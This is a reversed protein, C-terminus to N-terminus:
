ATATKRYAGDASIVFQEIRLTSVPQSHMCNTDHVQIGVRGAQQLVLQRTRSVDEKTNSGYLVHNTRSSFCTVRNLKPVADIASKFEDFRIEPTDSAVTIDFYYPWGVISDLKAQLMKDEVIDTLYWELSPLTKISSTRGLGLETRAASYRQVLERFLPAERKDHPTKVFRKELVDLIERAQSGRKVSMCLQASRVVFETFDLSTECLKRVPALALDKVAAHDVRYFKHMMHIVRYAKFSVAKRLETRTSNLQEPNSLLEALGQLKEIANCADEVDDNKTTAPVSADRLRTFITSTEVLSKELSTLCGSENIKGTEAETTMCPNGGPDGRNGNKKRKKGRPKRRKNNRKLGMATGETMNLPKEDNRAFILKWLRESRRMAQDLQLTDQRMEADRNEDRAEINALTAATEAREAYWGQDSMMKRFHKGNNHKVYTDAGLCRLLNFLRRHGHKVALHALTENTHFTPTNLDVLNDAELIIRAIAEHGAIVASHVAMTNPLTELAGGVDEQQPTKRCHTPQNILAGMQIMWEVLDIDHAAGAAAQHLLTCLTNNTDESTTPNNDCSFIRLLEPDKKVESKLLVLDKQALPGDSERLLTMLHSFVQERAKNESRVKIAASGYEHSVFSPQAPFLFYKNKHTSLPTAFRAKIVAAIKRCMERVDDGSVNCEEHTLMGVPLSDWDMSGDPQLIDLLSIFPTMVVDVLGHSVSKELFDGSSSSQGVYEDHFQRRGLEDCIQSFADTLDDNLTLLDRSLVRTEFLEKSCIDAAKKLMAKPSSGRLFSMDDGMLLHYTDSLDEPFELRAKNKTFIERPLPHRGKYLADVTAASYNGSLLYARTYTGHAALTRSPFFIKDQYIQLLEEFFPIRELFGQDLLAVYLHGFARLKPTPLLVGSALLLYKIHHKTMTFGALLPNLRTLAHGSPSKRIEVICQQILHHISKGPNALAAEMKRMLNKSHTYTLSINRSLGADGQLAAVSKIWCICAFVLPISVKRSEFYEDFLAMFSSTTDERGNEFVRKKQNRHTTNYLMPLQQMLFVVINDSNPLIYQPTREEGYNEGLHLYILNWYMDKKDEKEGVNSVFSVLTWWVTTFDNLLMGPVFTYTGDRDFKERVDSAAKSIQDKLSTSPHDMLIFLLDEATQLAPYRAQLGATLANALDIAVTVVVTAEMMTRKQKKVQDYINFVEEVLEELELFFYAVELKVDNAFAEEFVRNRDAKARKPAGKMTVHNENDPFYDEDVELVDYYNEFRTKEMQGASQQEIEVAKLATYWNKLLELFHRHGVQAEDDDAFFAAVHERFKISCQCAALAKPLEQLLKPTLSSPEAAIGKVVENFADLHVRKGAHRGQGRARLLWDLFFATARKYRAYKSTPFSAM